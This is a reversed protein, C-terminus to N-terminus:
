TSAGTNSSENIPSYLTNLPPRSSCFHDSTPFVNESNFESRFFTCFGTKYAFLSSLAVKEFNPGPPVNQDSRGFARYLWYPGAVHFLKVLRTKEQLLLPNWSPALTWRFFIAESKRLKINLPYCLANRKRQRSRRRGPSHPGYREQHSSLFDLPKKLIYYRSSVALERPALAM